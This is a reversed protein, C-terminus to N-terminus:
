KLLREVLEKTKISHRWEAYRGFFEVEPPFEIVDEREVLQGVKLVFRDYEFEYKGPDDGKIEVAYYDPCRTIRHFMLVPDSFYVYDYKKFDEESGRLVMPLNKAKIFTTPYSKFFMDATSELGSMKYFAPRPICIVLKDYSLIDDNNSQVTKEKLNVFSIKDVVVQQQVAGYLFSVLSEADIDFAEFESDGGSMASRYVGGSVGRTKEFYQKRNEETNTASIKGDIYFGIKITKRPVTTKIDKLFQETEKTAHLYKPGLQFPASFQGGIKDTFVTAEPHYLAYSLGAIGGGIVITKM